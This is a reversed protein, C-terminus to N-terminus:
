RTDTIRYEIVRVLLPMIGECTQAPSPLYAALSSGDHVQRQYSPLHHSPVPGLGHSGHARISHWFSLGSFPADHLLLRESTLSSMLDHARRRESHTRDSITADVIAPSGCESLLLLRLQPFPGPGYHHSPRCFAAANAPTDPVDQMTGDLAMLRKGCRYAGKTAATCLPRCWCAFLGQLPEVGLRQRRDSSAPGRVQMAALSLGLVQVPRALRELVRPLALRTGLAAALLLHTLVGRNLVREREEWRHHLRLQDCIIQHPYVQEFVHLSVQHCMKDDFDLHRLSYPM